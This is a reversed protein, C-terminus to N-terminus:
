EWEMTAPPKTTIDYVVRSINPVENVIRSSIKQLLDYPLRAWTATMIDTSQVVRLAIVEGFFKGDGKTATSYSGTMVPFSIFVNDLWGSRGLEELVISDAQKEQTLREATVEGRIRVAFGPGPFPQKMICEAPLGVMRGLARVEDKYLERLPELLTLKMHEPLGGVNHHSKIKSAYKTGQSEIVDSYITGQLLYAVDQEKQLLKQMEAEFVEIYFAGIIKRKEESDTIGQLRSLMAQRVDVITPTIDFQSFVKKVTLAADDRMLGNDVFVPILQKGIARAVLTGAVTSDVGGSIAGIVHHEGVTKRIQQIFVDPDISHQNKAIGCIEIFNQLILSGYETHEVEPHFQLMYMNNREDEAATNPVHPTSGILTFGHPLEIIEDGHSMWVTINRAVGKLLKSTNHQVTFSAPGYEKRGAIVKGGLLHAALQFGYCIGLIPLGLTFIKTDVTPAGEEYVSIPGGSLVIGLPKEAQIAALADEPVVMKAPSGLFRLRRVILHATQGGFDIVLIM